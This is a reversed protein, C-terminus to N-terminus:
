EDKPPPTYAYDWPHQDQQERCKLTNLDPKVGDWCLGPDWRYINVTDARKESGDAGLVKFQYSIEWAPPDIIFSHILSVIGLNPNDAAPKLEATLWPKPRGWEYVALTLGPPVPQDFSYIFTCSSVPTNRIELAGGIFRGQRAGAPPQSSEASVARYGSPMCWVSLEDAPLSDASVLPTPTAESLEPAAPEPTTTILHEVIQTVVVTEPVLRTVEVILPAPEVKSSSCAPLALLLLLWLFRTWKRPSTFFM